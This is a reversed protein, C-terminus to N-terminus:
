LGSWSHKVLEKGVPVVPWDRPGSRILCVNNNAPLSTHQDLVQHWSAVRSGGSSSEMQSGAQSSQVRTVGVQGDSNIQMDKQSDATPGFWVVMHGRGPEQRRLCPDDFHEEMTFRLLVVPVGVSQCVGINDELWFSTFDSPLEATVSSWDRAAKFSWVPSSMLDSPGVEDTISVSHVHPWVVGMRQENSMISYLHLM